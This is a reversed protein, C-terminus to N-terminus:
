IYKSPNVPEGNERIEFHLHPGTSNGTMGVEGLLDGQAVSEGVTVNIASLHGYASSFAESHQVIVIRGYGRQSGAFIVKGSAASAVPDGIDGSIDIGQHPKEVHDLPHTRM